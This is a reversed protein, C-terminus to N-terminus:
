SVLRVRKGYLDKDSTACGGSFASSRGSFAITRAIVRTCSSRLSGSGTFTLNQNPFYTAGNLALNANGNIRNIQQNGNVLTAATRDQYFLVDEYTGSTPASLTVSADGNILLTAVTSPTPGTLIFTVGTGTITANGGFRLTGGYITYVGPAFHTNTTLEAGTFCGPTVSINSGGPFNRCTGRPPIPLDIYPDPQAPQGQFFTPSGQFNPYEVLTGSASIDTARIIASSGGVTMAPNGTSNTALGCDLDLDTSGEFTFGATADEVLSLMCYKPYPTSAATATANILIPDSRFMSLFSVTGQRQLNVRVATADGAYTGTTPGNEVDPAGTLTINAFQAMSETVASTPDKRQFKAFAGALAASDAARQLERKQLVWQSTDVAIAGSAIILPMLGAAVMLMNGRSDQILSERTRRLM